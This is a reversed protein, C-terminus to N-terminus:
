LLCIFYPVHKLLWQRSKAVIKVSSTKLKKTRKDHQTLGILKKHQRKKKELHRQYAMSAPPLMVNETQGDIWKDM